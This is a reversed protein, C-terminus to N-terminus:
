INEDNCIYIRVAFSLIEYNKTELVNIGIVNSINKLRYRITNKHQVMADATKQIDGDNLVYSIATELLNGKTELDYDELPKIYDRCFERMISGGCYPLIVKYIGLKEYLMRGTEEDNKLSAAYKSEEFCNKIQWLM